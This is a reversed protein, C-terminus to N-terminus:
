IYVQPSTTHTHTSPAGHRIGQLVPAADEGTATYVAYLRTFTKVFMAFLFLAFFFLIRIRKSLTIFLCSHRAQRGGSARYEDRMAVVSVAM